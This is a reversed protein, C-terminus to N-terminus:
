RSKLVTFHKSEIHPTRHTVIAIETGVDNWTFDVVHIEEEFASSIAGTKIDVLYLRNYEWDEGWSM